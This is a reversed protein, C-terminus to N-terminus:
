ETVTRVYTWAYKSFIAAVTGNEYFLLEGGDSDISTAEIDVTGPSGEAPALIVKYTQKQM